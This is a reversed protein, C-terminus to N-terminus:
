TTLGENISKDISRLIYRTNETEFTGNDEVKVIPSTQALQQNSVFPSPHNIPYLWARQRVSLPHENIIHSYFVIPKM